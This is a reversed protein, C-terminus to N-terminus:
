NEQSRRKNESLKEVVRFPTWWGLNSPWSFPILKPASSRKRWCSVFFFPCGPQLLFSIIGNWSIPSEYKKDWPQIIWIQAGNIVSGGGVRELVLFLSVQCMVGSMHYLCTYKSFGSFKDCESRIFTDLCM